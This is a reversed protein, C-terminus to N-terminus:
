TVLVDTRAAASFYRTLDPLIGGPRPSRPLSSSGFDLLVQALGELVPPRRPRIHLPRSTDGGHQSNLGSSDGRDIAFCRRVLVMQPLKQCGGPTNKYKM